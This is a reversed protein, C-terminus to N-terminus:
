KGTVDLNLSSDKYYGYEATITVTPTKRIEVNGVDFRKCFMGKDSIIKVQETSEGMDGFEISVDVQGVDKDDIQQVPADNSYPTGEGVNEVEVCFNINEQGKYVVSPEKSKISIHIPGDSNDVEPYDRSPDDTSQYEEGTMITFQSTGETEYMYYIRSYFEYPISTGRDLDPTKVQWQVTSEGETLSNQSSSLDEPCGWKNGLGGCPPSAYLLDWCTTCEGFPVNYLKARIDKAKKGGVNKMSLKLNTQQGTKLDTFDSTFNTVELGKKITSETDTDGDEGDGFICGSLVFTLALFLLLLAKKEM